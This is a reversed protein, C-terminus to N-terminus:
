LHYWLPVLGIVRGCCTLKQGSHKRGLIELSRPTLFYKNQCPKKSPNPKPFFIANVLCHVNELVVRAGASTPTQFNFLLYVSVARWVVAASLMATQCVLRPSPHEQSNKEDSAPPSKYCFSTCAATHVRRGRVRCWNDDRFNGAAEATFHCLPPVLPWSRPELSAFMYSSWLSLRRTAATPTISRRPHRSPSKYM